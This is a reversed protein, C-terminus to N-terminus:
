SFESVCIVICNFFPYTFKFNIFGPGAVEIKEFYEEQQENIKDAIEEAIERPPKKLLKALKLAATTAFDGMEENRPVEVEIDPLSDANWGEQLSSIAKKIIEITIQKM